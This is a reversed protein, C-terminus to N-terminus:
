HTDEGSPTGSQKRVSISGDGTRITLRGGGNGLRGSTSGRTDRDNAGTFPLDHVVVRGDGTTAALEAGFGEPVEVVVSGDGTAVSWEGIAAASSTRVRVRGDGSRATLTPMIGELELSGDGSSVSVDGNVGALVVSGDGTKVSIAGVVDRVKVRGDGTSVDMTARVPVTVILRASASGFYVHPRGDGAEDRVVVSVRDGDQNTEISLREAAAKDSAHREITVRVENRDWTDVEVSGDFTDLHVQPTGNLPFQKEVTDVYRTDHASIDISCAASSLVLAPLLVFAASRASWRM